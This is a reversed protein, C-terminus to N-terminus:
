FWSKFFGSSDIDAQVDGLGGGFEVELAPLVGQGVRRGAMAFKHGQQSADRAGVDDAFGAATVFTGDDAANCAASRGTLTRFGRLHSVEGKAWPRRALFSGKSAADEGGASFGQSGFGRGRGLGHQGFQAGQNCHRL